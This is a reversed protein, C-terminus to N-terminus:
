LSHLTLFESDRISILTFDTFCFSWDVPSSVAMRGSPLSVKNSDLESVRWHEIYAEKGHISRSIIYVTYIGQWYFQGKLVGGLTICFRSTRGHIKLILALDVKASYYFWSDLLYTDRDVGDIRQWLGRRGSCCGRSWSTRRYDILTYSRSDIKLTRHLAGEYSVHLSTITLWRGACWRRDKLYNGWDIIRLTTRLPYRITLLTVRAHM